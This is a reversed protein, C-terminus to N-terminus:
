LTYYLEFKWKIRLLVKGVFSKSNVTSSRYGCTCIQSWFWTSLFEIKSLWICKNSPRKHKNSDISIFHSMMLCLILVQQLCRSVMHFTESSGSMCMCQWSTDIWTANIRMLMLMYIQLFRRTLQSNHQNAGVIQGKHKDCQWHQWWSLILTIRIDQKSNRVLTKVYADILIKKKLKQLTYLFSCYKTFFYNYTIKRPIFSIWTINLCKNKKCIDDIFFNNLM